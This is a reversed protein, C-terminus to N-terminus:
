LEFHRALVARTFAARLYFGRPMREQMGGDPGVARRRSRSSAAKPRIQLHTGDRATIDDVHGVVVRDMLEEWDAPALM